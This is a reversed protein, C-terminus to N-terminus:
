KQLQTQTQGNQEQVPPGYDFWTQAVQGHIDALEVQLQDIFDHLNNEFLKPVDMESIMRQVRTM